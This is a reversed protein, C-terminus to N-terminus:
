ESRGTLDKIWVKRFHVESKHGLLGVHGTTRQLGPHDKGDLTQPTSAEDLDADVIVEGNLIVTIQRGILRIEKRNWEGLPRLYGRKAPIIGYVSGHFQYPKLKAYRPATNDLIQIEFGQTAAHKGFPLRLGIGNNAGPTMRFECYFIFDGYQQETELNGSKDPLSKLLGDEVVYSDRAGIWGALTEGDFLSVFGEPMEDGRIPDGAALNVSPCLLLCAALVATWARGAPEPWSGSVTFGERVACRACSLFGQRVSKMRKM